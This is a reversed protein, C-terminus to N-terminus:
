RLLGGISYLTIAENEKADAPLSIEDSLIILNSLEAAVDNSTSVCVLGNSLRNPPLSTANKLIFM